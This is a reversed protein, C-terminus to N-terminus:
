PYFDRHVRFRFAWNDIDDAPQANNFSLAGL